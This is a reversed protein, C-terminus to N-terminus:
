VVNAKQQIFNSAKEGMLNGKRITLYSTLKEIVKDHDNFDAIYGTEGDKVLDYTTRTLLLLVHLGAAM